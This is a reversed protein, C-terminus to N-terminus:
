RRSSITRESWTIVYDPNYRKECKACSMSRQPKRFRIVEHGLPCRGLWKARDIAAESTHTRGGVYGISRARHLWLAGHAARAGVLAHAIEHLLVQEVEDASGAASLHKSLTIRRRRHDCQGFRTAANDWAFVWSSALGHLEFLQQARNEVWTQDAM